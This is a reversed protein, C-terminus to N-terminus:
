KVLLSAGLIGPHKIKSWKIPTKHPIMLAKYTEKKIMNLFKNGTERAGGILVVVEPDFVHILSAIGQGLYSSVEKLIKIARKDKSKLLEKVMMERGFYKKCQKRLNQWYTEMDKGNHILIQGLEGAYGEGSYLEHNIIVGGGIGTGLTLIFFNKKKVGYTMESLAVVDADNAVEVRKNFKKKLFEKLDFIKFPLNPSNIIVGKKLPGPSGVGIAKVDKTMVKKISNVLSDLIENKTKPTSVKVYNLIKKGKVLAVRLNTGGLDVAIVKSEVM